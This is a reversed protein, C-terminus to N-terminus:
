SLPCLCAPKYRCGRHSFRCSPREQWHSAAFRPAGNPPPKSVGSTLQREFNGSSLKYRNAVQLKASVLHSWTLRIPRTSFAREPNRQLPRGRLHQGWKTRLGRLDSECGSLRACSCDDGCDTLRPCPQVKSATSLGPTNVWCGQNVLQDWFCQQSLDPNWKLCVGWCCSAAIMIKKGRRM